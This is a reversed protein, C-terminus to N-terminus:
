TKIIDGTFLNTLFKKLKKTLKKIQKRTERKRVLIIIGCAV